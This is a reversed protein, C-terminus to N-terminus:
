PVAKSVLLPQALQKPEARPRLEWACMSADWIHIIYMGWCRSSQQAKLVESREKEPTLPQLWALDQQAELEVCGNPPSSVSDWAQLVARLLMKWIM